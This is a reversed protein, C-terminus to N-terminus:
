RSLAATKGFSSANIERHLLKIIITDLGAGTNPPYEIATSTSSCNCENRVRSLIGSFSVSMVIDIAFECPTHRLLGLRSSENGHRQTIEVSIVFDSSLVLVVVFGYVIGPYIKKRKKKKGIASSHIAM